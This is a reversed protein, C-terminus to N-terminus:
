NKRLESRSGYLSLKKDAARFYTRFGNVLLTERHVDYAYAIMSKHRKFHSFNNAIFKELIIDDFPNFMFILCNAEPLKYHAADENLFSINRNAFIMKNRNAAKVLSLSFEVGIFKKCKLTQAAYFCAKGKGSGIDIFCDFHVKTKIAEKLIIKLNRCTIPQYFTAHKINSKVSNKLMERSVVAELSLRHFKEFLFDELGARYGARNNFFSLNLISLSRGKLHTLGTASCKEPWVDVSFGPRCSSIVARL